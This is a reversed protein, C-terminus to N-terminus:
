GRNAELWNRLDELNDLFRDPVPFESSMLAEEFAELAGYQQIRIKKKRQRLKADDHEYSTDYHGM